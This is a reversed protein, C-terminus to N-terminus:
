RPTGTSRILEMEAAVRAAVAASNVATAFDLASGERLAQFSIHLARQVAARVVVAVNYDTTANRPTEPPLVENYHRRLADELAVDAAQTAKVRLERIVEANDLSRWDM